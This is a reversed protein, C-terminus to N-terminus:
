PKKGLFVFDVVKDTIKIIILGFGVDGTAIRVYFFITLDVILDVTKPM